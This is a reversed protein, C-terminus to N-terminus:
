RSSWERVVVVLFLSMWIVKFCGGGFWWTEVDVFGGGVGGGCCRCCSFHFMLVYDVAFVGDDGAAGGDFEDVTCEGGFAEGVGEGGVFTAFVSLSILPLTSLFWFKAFM